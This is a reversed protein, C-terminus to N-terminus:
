ILGAIVQLGYLIIRTEKAINVRGKSKSTCTPERPSLTYSLVGSGRISTVLRLIVM